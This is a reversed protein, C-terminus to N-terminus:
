METRSSAERQEAEVMSQLQQLHALLRKVRREDARGLREPDPVDLFNRPLPTIAGALHQFNRLWTGDRDFLRGSEYEVSPLDDLHSPIGRTLEEVGVPDILMDGALDYVDHIGIEALDDLVAGKLGAQLRDFPIPGPETRGIVITFANLHNPVYWITTNPFVRRFAEIIMLYNRTTLSYTPLWMSVVGDPQLADRCLRFYNETYLSGNGAYRPHISDSLIVDFKEPTAMVFNRGDNIEVQVRPDDLVGENVQRLYQDSAELVEPSIEAITISEVVDHLSVAYATGGSGFGIHLVKKPQPHILLPLHGQLKQTGVLAPTTGAVNVGNLELSLSEDRGMLITPPGIVVFVSIALAAVAGAYSSVGMANAVGDIMEPLRTFAALHLAIMVALGAEVMALTRLLSLRQIVVAVLASGLAIGILFCFLMM